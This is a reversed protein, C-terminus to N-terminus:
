GGLREGLRQVCWSNASSRGAQRRQSAVNESRLTIPRSILWVHGETVFFLKTSGLLEVVGIFLNM